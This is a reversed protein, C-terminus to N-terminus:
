PLPTGIVDAGAPPKFSVLAPDVPVNRESHSMNLTTLQGLKDQLVMRKLENHAFGIRAERFDADAGRPTVRVWELGEAAPASQLEFRAHLDEGGALLMAPTASLAGSLPKVTVQELDRDFYWINKGDAILLEGAGKEDAPHVEWRFKGPRVVVLEGSSREIVHGKADQVTQEFTTRLSTLGDLFRELANDGAAALALTAGMTVAIALVRASGHAIRM